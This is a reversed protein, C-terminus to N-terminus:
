LGAGEEGMEREIVMPEPEASAYSPMKVGARHRGGTRRVRVGGRSRWIAIACAGLGFASGAVWVVGGAFPIAAAAALIAWGFVLALVRGRPERWLVRGIAFACWALGISYLLFLALLLGLGLPLLALTFLGALGAVPLAVLAVVGWAASPWASGLAARGAADAGRPALWLLLLGLALVSLWIALWPAYSGLARIPTGLAFTAGERVDGAVEAGEASTVSERALVDGLVQSSPGLLVPGDVSVVSGSVQGTVRVRGDIVVVDGRVVGAVTVSGHLVVVEGVEQGRRVFVDGSVVIQDRPEAQDAPEQALATAPLGLCLAGLVLVIASRARPM